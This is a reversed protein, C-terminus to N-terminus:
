DCKGDEKTEERGKGRGEKGKGGEVEGHGEENAWERGERWKFRDTRRSGKM